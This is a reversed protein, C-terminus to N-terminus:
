SSVEGETLGFLSVNGTVIRSPRALLDLAVLISWSEDCFKANRYRRHIERSRARLPADRKAAKYSIVIRGFQINISLDFRRTAHSISFQALRFERFTRSFRRLIRVEGGFRSFSNRERWVIPTDIRENFCKFCPILDFHSCFFFFLFFLLFLTVFSLLFIKSRM